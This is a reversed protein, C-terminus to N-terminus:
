IVFNLCIIYPSYRFELRGLQISEGISDKTLSAAIALQGGSPTFTVSVLLFAALVQQLRLSDGYLTETSLNPALNDVIMISKGNSKLMVQSISAILVEHLKFEVM